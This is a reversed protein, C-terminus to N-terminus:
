GVPTFLRSRTSPLVINCSVSTLSILDPRPSTEHLGPSPETTPEPLYELSCKNEMLPSSTNLRWLPSGIWHLMLWCDYEIIAKCEWYYMFKFNRTWWRYAVQAKDDFRRMGAVQLASRCHYWKWIWDIPRMTGMNFACNMPLTKQRENRFAPINDTLLGFELPLMTNRIM